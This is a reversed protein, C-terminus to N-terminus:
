PLPIPLKVYAVGLGTIHTQSRWQQHTYLPTKKAAVEDWTQPPAATIKVSDVFQAVKLGSFDILAQNRILQSTMLPANQCGMSIHVCVMAMGAIFVFRRPFSRLVGM